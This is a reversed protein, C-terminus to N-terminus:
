FIDDSSGSLTNLNNRSFVKDLEDDTSSDSLTGGYISKKDFYLNTKKIPNLDIYRVSQYMNKKCTEKHHTFKYYPVLYNVEKNSRYDLNYNDPKNRLSLHHGNICGYYKKPKKFNEFNPKSIKEILDKQVNIEIIPNLCEGTLLDNRCIKLDQTRVGNRCNYGGSCKNDLCQPCTKTMFLLHKYIEDNKPNNPYFFNMLDENLIIQYIFKKDSDIIQEVLDHAYSCQKGYICYEGNIVSHCILRKVNSNDRRYPVSYIKTTRNGSNTDIEEIKIEDSSSDSKLLESSYEDNVDRDYTDFTNDIM